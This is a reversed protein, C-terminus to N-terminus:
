VLDVPNWNLSPGQMGLSGGSESFQLRRAEYGEVLFAALEQCARLVFLGLSGETSFVSHCEIGYHKVVATTKKKSTM